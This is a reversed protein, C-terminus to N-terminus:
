GHSHGERKQNKEEGRPQEARKMESHQIKQKNQQRNAHEAHFGQQPKQQRGFGVTVLVNTRCFIEATKKLGQQFNDAVPKWKQKQAGTIIREVVIQNQSDIRVGGVHEQRFNVGGNEAILRRNQQFREDM